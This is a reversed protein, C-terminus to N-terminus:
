SPADTTQSCSHRWNFAEGDVNACPVRCADAPESLRIYSDKHSCWADITGPKGCFLGPKNPRALKANERPAKANTEAVEQQTNAFEVEHAELEDRMQTEFTTLQNWAVVSPMASTSGSDVPIAGATNLPDM